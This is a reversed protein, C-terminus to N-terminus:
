FLKIILLVIACLIIIGLIKEMIKANLSISGLRSGLYGGTIVAIALPWYNIIENIHHQNIRGFLGMVSNLFVFIVACGAAEKVSGLNFLIILPVLYVGGGIGVIGAILGLLAGFLISIGLKQKENIEIRLSIQDWLYIRMVVLSLSVLLIYQFIEKDLQMSGGIFSMPMSSILFPLLLHLNVHKNRAFHYSGIASVLVNLFLSITPIFLITVGVIAMIATYSSGGGLGVSSYVFSIFLFIIALGWVPLILEILLSDM